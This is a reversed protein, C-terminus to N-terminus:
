SNVIAVRSLSSSLFLFFDGDDRSSVEEPPLTPFRRRTKLQRPAAALGNLVAPFPMRIVADLTVQSEHRAIIVRGRLM